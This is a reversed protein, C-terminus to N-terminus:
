GYCSRRSRWRGGGGERGGDDVRQERGIANTTREHALKLHSPQGSPCVGPRHVAQEHRAHLDALTEQPTGDLTQRRALRPRPRAYPSPRRPSSPRPPRLPRARAASPAPGSPPPLLVLRDRPCVLALAALGRRAALSPGDLAFLYQRCQQHSDCFCPADVRASSGREEKQVSGGRRQSIVRRGTPRCSVAMGRSSQCSSASVTRMWGRASPLLGRRRGAM